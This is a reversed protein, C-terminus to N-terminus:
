ASAAAIRAFAIPLGTSYSGTESLCNMAIRVLAPM